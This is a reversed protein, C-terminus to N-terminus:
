LSDVWHENAKLFVGVSTLVAVIASFWKEGSGGLMNFMPTAENLVILLAGVAAIIFKYYKKVKDFFTVPGPVSKVVAQGSETPEVLNKVPAAHRGEHPTIPQTM